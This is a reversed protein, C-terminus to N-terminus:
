SPGRSWYGMSCLRLQPLLPEAGVPKRAPRYSPAATTEQDCLWDRHDQLVGRVLARFDRGPRPEAAAADFEGVEFFKAVQNLGQRFQRVWVRADQNDEWLSGPWSECALLARVPIGRRRAEDVEGATVSANGNGGEECTPVWGRRFAMLLLLLDCSRVERLCELLTPGTSTGFHEMMVPHWRQELIVDGVVARHQLLDKSTSSVFVRLMTSVPESADGVYSVGAVDALSLKLRRNYWM